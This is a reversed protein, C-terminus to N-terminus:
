KQLINPETSEVGMSGFARLRDYFGIHFQPYRLFTKCGAGHIRLDLSHNQLTKKGRIEMARDIGQQDLKPVRRM